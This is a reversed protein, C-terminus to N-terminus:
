ARRKILKLGANHINRQNVIDHAKEGMLPHLYKETTTISEHGM